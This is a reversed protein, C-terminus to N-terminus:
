DNLQELSMGVSRRGFSVVVIAAVFLFSALGVMIYFFGFPQLLVFFIPGFTSFGSGLGEAGGSAISRIRTPFNEATYTFLCATLWSNAAFGVFSAAALIFYDHLILGRIIFSIAMVASVIAFQYKREFRDAVVISLCAGLVYGVSGITTIEVSQITTYGQNVYEVVLLASAATPVLILFWVWVFLLMRTLIKRNKFTHLSKKQTLASASDIEREQIPRLGLKVLVINTERIRGKSLLWRPSERMNFRLQLLLIAVAAPIAMLIRWSDIGMIEEEQLLFLSLPGSSSLGITGILFIISIYRGRMSRPSIEGIYATAIVLEAGIGIGTLLRFVSVQFINTSVSVLITGVALVILTIMLAPRRGKWDAIISICFAGVVQGLVRTSIAYAIQADTLDWDSRLIPSIYQFNTIDYLSFFSGLCIATIVSKRVPIRGLTDIQVGIDHGTDKENREPLLDNVL